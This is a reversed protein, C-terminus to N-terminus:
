PITEASTWKRLTLMSTITPEGSSCPATNRSPRTWTGSPAFPPYPTASACSVLYGRLFRLLEIDCTIYEPYTDKAIDAAVKERMENIYKQKLESMPNCDLSQLDEVLFSAISEFESKRIGKQEETLDKLISM